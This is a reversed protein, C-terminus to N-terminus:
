ANEANNIQGQVARTDLIERSPWIKVESAFFRSRKLTLAERGVFRVEMMFTPTSDLLKLSGSWSFLVDEVAEEDPQLSELKEFIGWRQTDPRNERYIIPLPMPVLNPGDGNSPLSIVPTISTECEQKFIQTRGTNKLKVSVVAVKWGNALNIVQKLAFDVQVNATTTRALVFVYLAWLGGLLIALATITNRIIETWTKLDSVDV